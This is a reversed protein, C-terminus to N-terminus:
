LELHPCFRLLNMSSFLSCPPGLVSGQIVGSLLTVLDSLSGGVKTCHTRGTFFNRLWTLLTGGIGYSELRVFLKSHSVVDFAKSFDVYAIVVGHKDQLYHTWDNLSELLNTCTSLGTLFGHQATHLLNNSILHNKIQNAIIRELLKSTVCTISIPRYNSCDTTPGKKHVPTIVAVKWVDPV